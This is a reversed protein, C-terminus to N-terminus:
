PSLHDKEVGFETINDCLVGSEPLKTIIYISIWEGNEFLLLYVNYLILLLIFYFNVYAPSAISIAQWASTRRNRWSVETYLVAHSVTDSRSTNNNCTVNINIGSTM